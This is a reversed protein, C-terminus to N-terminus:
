LKLKKVLDRLSNRPRDLEFISLGTASAAKWDRNPDDGAHL